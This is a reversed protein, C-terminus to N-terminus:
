TARAVCRRGSAQRAEEYGAASVGATVSTGVPRAGRLMSPADAHTGVCRRVYVNFLAPVAGSLERM